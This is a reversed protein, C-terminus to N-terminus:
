LVPIVAIGIWRTTMKLWGVPNTNYGPVSTNCAEAWLSGQVQYAGWLYQTDNDLSMPSPLLCEFPKAWSGVSPSNKIEGLRLKRM